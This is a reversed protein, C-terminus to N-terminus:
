VMENDETSQLEKTKPNYVKNKKIGVYLQAFKYKEDITGYPLEEYDGGQPETSTVFLGSDLASNAYGFMKQGSALICNVGSSYKSVYLRVNNGTFILPINDYKLIYRFSTLDIAYDGWSESWKSKPLKPLLFYEPREFIVIRDIVIDKSGEEFLYLVIPKKNKDYQVCFKKSPHIKTINDM